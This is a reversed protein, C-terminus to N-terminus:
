RRLPLGAKEYTADIMEMIRTSEDLGVWPGNYEKGKEVKDVMRVFAELQYRYTTFWDKLGRTDQSQEADWSPGGQYQKLVKKPGRHLIKTPVAPHRTVPTITISHSAWAGVFNDYIIEAGTTQITVTPAAEWLRPILGFLNPLAHDTQITCTVTSTESAQGYIKPDKLFITATMAEDILKDKHHLRPKAELIEFEVNPDSIDRVALYAVASFVYTLDMISGGALDYQFRIDDKPLIGAPIKFNADVSLVRGYEGSLLIEKLVHASPHFRWHFAELVVKGTRSAVRHIERVQDANSAIPKEILVHKGKELASIAYKYHLGNPLPIYVAEM